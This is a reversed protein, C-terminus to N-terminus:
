RTTSATSSADTSSTDSGTSGFGPVKDKVTEQVSGAAHAVKEQAASAAHSAKEQAVGAAQSAKEQVADQARTAQKQVRPDSWFGQAKAAIQDYRQRGARAGLVYGAGIGILIGLKAM